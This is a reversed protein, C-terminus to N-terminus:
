PCTGAAIGIPVLHKRGDATTLALDASYTRPPASCDPARATVTLIHTSGADLMQPLPNGGTSHLSFSAADAGEISARSLEGKSEGVNIVLVNRQWQPGSPAARPLEIRAPLVDLIAGSVGRGRLSVTVRASQPTGASTQAEIRLAANREGLTAAHHSVHVQVTAGPALQLPLARIEYAPFTYVRGVMIGDANLGPHDQQFAQHAAALFDFTGAPTTTVGNRIEFRQEYLTFSASKLAVTRLGQGGGKGAEVMQLHPPLAAGRALEVKLAQWPTGTVPAAPLQEVPLPVQLAPGSFQVSFDGPHEGLFGAASVTLPVDGENVLEFRRVSVQNGGVQQAGFDLAGARARLAAGSGTRALLDFEIVMASRQAHVPLDSALRWRLPRAQVAGPQDRLQLNDFAPTLDPVVATGAANTCSQANLAYRAGDAQATGRCRYACVGERDEVCLDASIAQALPQGNAMRAKIQVQTITLSPSFNENWRQQGGSNPLTSSGVEWWWREVAPAPAALRAGVMPRRLTRSRDVVMLNPGFDQEVPAPTGFRPPLSHLLRYSADREPSLTGGMGCAPLELGRTPLSLHDDAQRLLARQPRVGPRCLGDPNAAIDNAANERYRVMRTTAITRLADPNCGVVAHGSGDVSENYCALVLRDTAPPPDSTSRTTQGERDYFVRIGEDADVQHFHPESRDVPHRGNCLGVEATQGTLEAVNFPREPRCDDSLPTGPPADHTCYTDTQSWRWTQEYNLQLTDGVTDRRGLWLCDSQVMNSATLPAGRFASVPWMPSLLQDSGLQYPGYARSAELRQAESLSQLDGRIKDNFGAETILFSTTPVCGALALVMATTAIMRRKRM